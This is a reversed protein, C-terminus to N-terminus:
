GCAARHRAPMAPDVAAGAGPAIARPSCSGDVLGFRNVLNYYFPGPFSYAPNVPPPTPHLILVSPVRSICQTHRPRKGHSPARCGLVPCRYRRGRSCATAPLAPRLMHSSRNACGNAPQLPFPLRFQLSQFPSQLLDICVMIPLQLYSHTFEPRCRITRTPHQCKHPRGALLPAMFLSPCIQRTIDTMVHIGM